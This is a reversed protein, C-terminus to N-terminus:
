WPWFAEPVQEPETFEGLKRVTTARYGRWRHPRSHETVIVKRNGPTLYNFVWAWMVEVRRFVRVQEDSKDYHDTRYAKVGYAM